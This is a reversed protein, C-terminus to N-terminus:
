PNLSLTESDKWPEIAYIKMTKLTKLTKLTGHSLVLPRGATNLANELDEPYITGNCKLDIQRFLGYLEIEKRDM